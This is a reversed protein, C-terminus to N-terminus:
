DFAAKVVHAGKVRKIAAPREAALNVAVRKLAPGGKNVAAFFNKLSDPRRMAFPTATTFKATPSASSSSSPSSSTSPSSTTTAKSRLTIPIKRSQGTTTTTTITSPHKILISVPFPIPTRLPFRFPLFFFNLREKEFGPTPFTPRNIHKRFNEKSQVYPTKPHFKVFPLFINSHFIQIRSKLSIELALSPPPSINTRISSNWNCFILAFELLSLANKQRYSQAHCLKSKSYPCGKGYLNTICDM